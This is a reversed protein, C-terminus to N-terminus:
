QGKIKKAIAREHEKARALAQELTAVVQQASTLLARLDQAAPPAAHAFPDVDDPEALVEVNDFPVEEVENNLVAQAVSADFPSATAGGRMSSKPSGASSPAVGARTTLDPAELPAADRLTTDVNNKLNELMRGVAARLTQTVGTGNKASAEVTPAGGTQLYANMEEVPDVNPLDRKNYQFVLAVKEPDIRNVRLNTKLNELSDLNSERM